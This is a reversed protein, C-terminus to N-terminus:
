RKIALKGKTGASGTRERPAVALDVHSTRLSLVVGRVRYRPDPRACPAFELTM